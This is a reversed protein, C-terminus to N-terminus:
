SIVDKSMTSQRPLRSFSMPLYNLTICWNRASYQSSLISSLKDYVLNMAVTVLTMNLSSELELNSTKRGPVVLGAKQAEFFQQLEIFFSRTIDSLPPDVPLTSLPLDLLRTLQTVNQPWEQAQIIPHMQPPPLM